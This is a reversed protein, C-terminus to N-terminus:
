PAADNGGRKKIAERVARKVVEEFPYLYDEVGKLAAKIADMQQMSTLIPAYVGSDGAEANAIDYAVPYFADLVKGWLHTIEFDGETCDRAACKIKTHFYGTSYDGFERSM